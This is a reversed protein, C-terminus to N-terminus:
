TDYEPSNWKGYNYISDSRYVDRLYNNADNYDPCWGARFIQGADEEQKAWYVTNDIMSLEVQIGLTELWMAQLAQAVASLTASTGFEVTIPPLEDASSLGLEKLGLELEERAKDPDFRIGLDGFDTGAPALAISPPTYFPSPIEGGALVDKVLTERDVAYNFARRIHINDFPPKQTHFGWAQTCVGPVIKLQPGLESDVRVREIQDGPVATLITLVLFVFFTGLFFIFSSPSGSYEEKSISASSEIEDLHKV